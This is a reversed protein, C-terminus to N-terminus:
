QGSPSPSLPGIPVRLSNPLAAYSVWQRLVAKTCSAAALAACLRFSDTRHSDAYDSVGKIIICSGDGWAGAAEMEFAIINHLESQEDRQQATRMVSDGTAVCGFHITPKWDKGHVNSRTRRVYDTRCGMAACKSSRAKECPIRECCPLLVEHNAPSRHRHLYAPEFLIDKEQGPYIPGCEVEAERLIKEYAIKMGEITDEKITVRESAKIKKLLSSIGRKLRPLRSDLDDWTEFHEDWQSGFRYQYVSTSIVVDGLYIPRTAEPVAGCIGVVITLQVGPFTARIGQAATAASEVGISIHAVAVFYNRIRGFTYSTDDRYTPFLQYEREQDATIKEDMTAIVATAEEEMACLIVVTFAQLGISRPTSAMKVTDLWRCEAIASPDRYLGRKRFPKGTFPRTLIVPM